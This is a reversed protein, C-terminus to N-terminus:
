EPISRAVLSISLRSQPGKDVSVQVISVSSEKEV